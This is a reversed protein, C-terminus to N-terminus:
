AVRLLARWEGNEKKHKPNPIYYYLVLSDYEYPTYEEYYAIDCVRVAWLVCSVCCVAVLVAVLVALVVASGDCQM